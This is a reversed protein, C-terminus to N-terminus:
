NHSRGRNKITGNSSCNIKRRCLLRSIHFTCSNDSHTHTHTHTHTHARAHSQITVEIQRVSGPLKATYPTRRRGNAQRFQPNSDRRLCPHRDTTVSKNQWTSTEAVPRDQTWLIGVSHLTDSHSWTSCYCEVGVFSHTSSTLSLFFSNRPGGEGWM